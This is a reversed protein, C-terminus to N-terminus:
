ICSPKSYRSNLKGELSGDENLKANLSFQGIAQKPKDIEIQKWIKNKNDIYLGMWNYDKIPLLNLDSFEVTADLFYKKDDIVAYALVYNLRDVNPFFPILNDKTSIVVPNAKIGAYRLMAVLTLNIDATSGKKEKLMKKIGYYFYKGDIGNW